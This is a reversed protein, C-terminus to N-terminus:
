KISNILGVKAHYQYIKVPAEKQLGFVMWLTAAILIVSLSFLVIDPLWRNLRKVPESRANETSITTGAQM